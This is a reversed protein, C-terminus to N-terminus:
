YGQKQDPAVTRAPMAVTVPAVGQLESAQRLVGYLFGETAAEYVPQTAADKYQFTMVSPQFSARRAILEGTSFCWTSVRNLRGRGQTSCPPGYQITLAAIVERYQASPGVYTLNALMGKYTNFGLEQSGDPKDTLVKRTSIKCSAVDRSKTPALSCSYHAMDIIQGATVSGFSFTVPEPLLSPRVTVVRKDRSQQHAPQASANVTMCAITALYVFTALKMLDGSRTTFEALTPFHRFDYSDLLRFM